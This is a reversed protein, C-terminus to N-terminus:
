FFLTSIGTFWFRELVGPFILNIIIKENTRTKRINTRIDIFRNKSYELVTNDTAIPKDTKSIATNIVIPKINLLV